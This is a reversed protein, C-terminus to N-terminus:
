FIIDFGGAPLILTLRKSTKDYDFAKFPQGNLTVADPRRDLKLTVTAPEALCGTIGDPRIEITVPATSSLIESGARKLSRADVAFITGLRWALVLADTTFKEGLFGGRRM